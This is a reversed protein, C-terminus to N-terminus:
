QYHGNFNLLMVLQPLGSQDGIKLSKATLSKLLYRHRDAFDANLKALAKLGDEATVADQVSAIDCLKYTVKSWRIASLGM